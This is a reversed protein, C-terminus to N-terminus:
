RDLASYLVCFDLALGTLYLRDFGRTQLYGSLGTATIKDNEFFASYSDITRRFGKRLIFECNNTELTSHFEAGRTGQVCHDPWLVQTGYDLEITELPLAQAHSSAFSLHGPPHWDQTLICHSFYHVLRNIIPIVEDGTPVELAGGRCFDNQVDIILLCDTLTM